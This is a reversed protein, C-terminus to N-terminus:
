ELLDKLRAALKERRDAEINPLWPWCAALALEYPVFGPRPMKEEMVRFTEHAIAALKEDHRAASALAVIAAEDTWDLQGLAIRRLTDPAVFSLIYAAATQIRQIWAVARPWGEPVPPPHVLIAVLKDKAGEGLEKAARKAIESWVERHYHLIALDIVATRVASEGPDEVAPKPDTGDYTYLAIGDPHRVERPDPKGVENVSVDYDGALGYAAKQLRFATRNSPAELSTVASRTAGSWSEANGEEVDRQMQRIMNATADAHAPLWSIFPGSELAELLSMGRGDPDSVALAILEARYKPDKTSLANLYAVSAKAWADDAERLLAQEYAALAASHQGQELRIDGIDLLASVDKPDVESAKEFAAVAGEMDKADRKACAVAVYARWGGDAAVAAEAATIADDYRAARRLALGTAVHALAMKPHLERVVDLIALASKLDARAPHDEPVPAPLSSLFGVLPSVLDGEVVDAGLATLAGPKTVWGAAWALYGVDPRARAVAVLLSLADALQGKKALVYARISANLFDNKGDVFSLADDSKEIITDLLALWEPNTPNSALAGGAHFIAHGLDGEALAEIAIRAEDEPSEPHGHDHHEHAM